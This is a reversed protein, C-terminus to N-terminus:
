PHSAAARWGEKRSSTLGPPADLYDYASLVHCKVVHLFEEVTVNRLEAHDTGLLKESMITTVDRVSAADLIVTAAQTASSALSSLAAVRFPTFNPCHPQESPVDSM